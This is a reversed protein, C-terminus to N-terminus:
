EEVDKSFTCKYFSFLLHPPGVTPPVIRERSPISGVAMVTGICRPKDFLCTLSMLNSDEDESKVILISVVSEHSLISM